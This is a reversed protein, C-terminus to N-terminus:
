ERGIWYSFLKGKQLNFRLQVVKGSLSELKADGWSVEVSTKDSRIDLSHEFGKIPQGKDDFVSVWLGGETTDANVHLTGKSLVFPKTRLTGAEGGADLSIFGDRRLVALCVAGIDRDLGPLPVHEGNPFTGVYSWNARYKLGTYYFWLEDNRLVPASPPLIQTLDYAGSDCRSPGLFPQRNGLRHWDKLDRSCALQVMHFGETNPYNPVPGTAHYLAPMGIYLGEYHFVGMNYVDVNYIKPDDYLTQQLTADRKRTEINKRGLEQDLEDASFVVGHDTWTKFDKSLAIAVSRGHPGSRKVTQIFLGSKPDFSFNGEDSSPIKPLDLRTWEAGDASVAFGENLLAAKFRRSPDKDLPDYVVMDTRLNTKPGPAWHLGDPSQWYREDIGLVWFKYLKSEPDWVPATRTQITQGPMSSRIMAGRKKPSHMTRTLGDIMDIGVDDLFLQRVEPEVHFAKKDAPEEAVSLLDIGSHDPRIRVRLLRLSMSKADASTHGGTGQDAVLLTGDPLEFAKAYGYCNDVLFGYDKAPAIWTQGGDASFIIRLGGRVYSGHLCVLTGDRLTYLSPAYLRMGFTAPTTWTRGEDSSWSIDGEPRAMMVLRGDSLQTANAEDLNHDAKITSLLKWTAGRDQSTFCAAQAPGGEKPAGSVTLLISGDKLMIMPGNTEDSLFPSPLRIVEKDWSKGHDFSRIIATRHALKPDQLYAAREAGPYTFVSCILMGDPGHPEVFAPHRDDDPTDLMVKPKSWTKGEDTSRMIM